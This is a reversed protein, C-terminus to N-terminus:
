FARTPTVDTWDFESVQTVTHYVRYRNVSM